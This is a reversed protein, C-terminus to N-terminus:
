KVKINRTLTENIQKKAKRNAIGLIEDIKDKVSMPSLDDFKGEELDRKIYDMAISGRLVQYERYKEDTYRLDNSPPLVKIMNKALFFDVENGRSPNYIRRTVAYKLGQLIGRGGEERDYKTIDRGFGDLKVNGVEIFPVNSTLVTWALKSDYTKNDFIDKIEGGYRPSLIGRGTSAFYKVGEDVDGGMIKSIAGVSKILEGTLKVPTLALKAVKTLFGDDLKYQGSMAENFVDLKENEDLEDYNKKYIDKSIMQKLRTHEDSKYRALDRMDGVLGLLFGIPTYEFSWYGGGKTFRISYPKWGTARLSADLDKDGTGSGYIDFDKDEDDAGGAMLFLAVGAVTAITAAKLRRKIEEDPLQEQTLNGTKLRMADAGLSVFEFPSREIGKIILNAFTNVVPFIFKTAKNNKSMSNIGSAIAGVLTYAPPEQTLTSRKSYNKSFEKLEESRSEIILDQILRDYEKSGKEYGLEKAVKLANKLVSITLGLEKNIFDAREQGNLGLKNANEIAYYLAALENNKIGSFADMSLLLRNWFKYNFDFGKKLGLNKSLFYYFKEFNTLDADPRMMILEFMGRPKIEDIPKYTAKGETIVQKAFGAGRVAGKAFQNLAMPLDKFNGKIISKAFIENLLFLSEMFNGLFNVENSGLSAFLNSLYDSVLFDLINYRAKLVHKYDELDQALSARKRPDKEARLKTALTELKKVEEDTLERLGIKKAFADRIDKYELSGNDSLTLLEDVWKGQTLGSAKIAKLKEKSSLKRLEKSVENAVEQADAQELGFSEKLKDVLTKETEQLETFHEVILDKLSMDMDSLTGKIGKQIEKEKVADFIGKLHDKDIDSEAIGLMDSVEKIFQSFQVSKYIVFDKAAKALAKDFQLNKRARDWPTEAIGVNKSRNWVDKLARKSSEYNAKAKEVKSKGVTSAVKEAVQLIAKENALNLKNLVDIFTNKTKENSVELLRQVERVHDLPIGDFFGKYMALSLGAKSSLPLIRGYIMNKMDSLTELRKSLNKDETNKLKVVIEEQEKSIEEVAVKAVRPIFDNDLWEPNEYILNVTNDLGLEDFLQKAKADADEIKTPTYYVLSEPVQKGQYMIRAAMRRVKQKPTYGKSPKVEEVTVSMLDNIDSATLGLKDAVSEIGARIDKDSEGAKRQSEIYDKIKSNQNKQSKSVVQYEGAHTTVSNAIGDWIAHHAIYGALDKPYGLEIGVQEIYGLLQDGIKKSAAAKKVKEKQEPTLKMSGAVWANLERADIVGRESVGFYQNFFGTKGEGIGELNMAGQYLEAFDRGKNKNFLDTMAKIGNSSITKVVYAAKSNERGFGVYSFLDKVQEQTANGAIIDKVLKKGEPTVLYAAAAGEPRIWDRGNKKELFIDSITQNTKDNWSSYWGGGSGMSALTILYSKVVKDETVKGDKLEQRADLIHKIVDNLYEVNGKLQEVWFSVPVFGTEESVAVQAKSKLNQKKAPPEENYESIASTADKQLNKAREVISQSAKQTRPYLSGAAAVQVPVEQGAKTIFRAEPFMKDVYYKGDLVFPNVGYFKSNFQKHKYTGKKSNEIFDKEAQYPDVYFGSLTFNGDAQKRGPTDGELLSMVNTDGFENFFGEHNYGKEKLKLRLNRAPAGEKVTGVGVFFKEFFSRRIDFGFKASKDEKSIRNTILLDVLKQLSEKKSFDTTRILDSLKDLSNSYKQGTKNNAKYDEIFDVIEKKAEKTNFLGSKTIDNLVRGFYDASYANGFMAAPTQVMVFIAVPRGKMEPFEADRKNAADVVAKYFSAIKGDNSAAFGINDKVNADIFTYGIGGQLLDKDKTVGIGTADSNIVVVAGGSKEVVDYMSKRDKPVNLSIGSSKDVNWEINFKKFGLDSKNKLKALPVVGSIIADGSEKIELDIESGESIAGSVQNLFDVFNKFDAESKFPQIKGKTIRSVFENILAAVRRLTSPKYQITEGGESLLASLETLYEEPAVDQGAYLKEFATVQENLDARLIKSMRDRFEKFVAPNDGFAKLLVAHTLEHAVTTNKANSLNIDIRGRGTPNDNSDREFAFNGRSNAVGGVERMTENYSDTDEHIYIEMDPFVSKLTAIAKKAAEIISKRDGTTKNELESLASKNNVNVAKKTSTKKVPSTPAVGLASLLGEGIQEPKTKKPEPKATEKAAQKEAKAKAKEAEKAKQKAAKAKEKNFEKLKDKNWKDVLSKQAERKTSLNDDIENGDNDETRYTIDGDENKLKSITGIVEGSFNDLLEVTISSLYTYTRGNDGEKEDEEYDVANDKTFSDYSTDGVTIPEYQEEEEIVEVEAAEKVPVAKQEELLPTILKDYKDYIEKRKAKDKPNAMADYEAKEAARLDAIQEALPKTTQAAEATPTVEIAALEANHRSELGLGVRQPMGTPMKLLEDLINQIEASNNYSKKLAEKIESVIKTYTDSGIFNKIDVLNKDSLEKAYKNRINDILTNANTFFGAIGKLLYDTSIVTGIGGTTLYDAAITNDVTSEVGETTPPTAEQDLKAQMEAIREQKANEKLSDVKATSEVVPAEIKNEAINQKQEITMKEIDADAYGLNRLSKNYPNEPVALNISPASLELIPAQPVAEAQIDEGAVGEKGPEVAMGVGDELVDTGASIPEEVAGQEDKEIEKKIEKNNTNELQTKVENAVEDQVETEAQQVSDLVSDVKAREERPLSNYADKSAKFLGSGISTGSGMGLAMIGTQIVFQTAKDLTGFQDELKSKVEKWSESDSYIQGLSEGFEEGLEGIVTKPADKLVSMKQGLDSLVKAAQPAKNGFVKFLTAAMGGVAQEVGKGIVGGFYGTTANVEDEQSPFLQSVAESTTAFKIGNAQTKLVLKGITDAAKATKYKNVANLYKATTNLGKVKGYQEAINVLRGLKTLGLVGESLMSAPVFEAAIALSSGIPAAFWKASYPTYDKAEEDAFKQQEKYINKAVDSEQAISNLNNAITQNTAVKGQIAPSLSTIFSKGIVGLASEDEISTRNLFLLKTAQKLKQEKEYLDDLEAGADNQTRLKYDMAYEELGGLQEDLGLERRKTLVETYLANTYERLKEYPTQSSKAVSAVETKNEDIFDDMQKVPDIVGKQTLELNAKRQNIRDLVTKGFDADITGDNLQSEIEAYQSNLENLNANYKERQAGRAKLYQQYYEAMGKENGSQKAELYKSKASAEEKDIDDLYNDILYSERDKYMDEVKAYGREQAEKKDQLRWYRTDNYLKQKVGQKFEQTKQAAIDTQVIAQAQQEEASLRPQPKPIEVTKTSVSPTTTGATKLPSQALKEQKPLGASSTAETATKYGFSLPTTPEKKKVDSFYSDFEKEDTFFGDDQILTYVEKRKKPDSVYSRFENEDSFYGKDSILDYVDKIKDAPM